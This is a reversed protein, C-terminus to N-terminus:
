DKVKHIVQGIGLFPASLASPHLYPHLLSGRLGLGPYWNGAAAIEM